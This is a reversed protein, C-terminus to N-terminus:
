SAKTIWLKEKERKVDNHCDALFLRCGKESLSRETFHALSSFFSNDCNPVIMGILNKM